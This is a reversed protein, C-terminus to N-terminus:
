INYSVLFDTPNLIPIKRFPHMVLLHFDGSIICSANCAVALELFMNDKKDECSDIKEVVNFFVANKELATLIAIRKSQTLYKDLKKRYIVETYETLISDSMAIRGLRLIRDFCIASTSNAILNASIFCSTDVVFFTDDM